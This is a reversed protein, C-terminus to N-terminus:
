EVKSLSQVKLKLNEIQERYEGMKSESEKVYQEHTRFAKIKNVLARVGLYIITALLGIGFVFFAIAFIDTM